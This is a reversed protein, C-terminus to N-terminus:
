APRPQKTIAQPRGPSHWGYGAARQTQAGSALGGILSGFAWAGACTTVAVSGAWAILRRAKM